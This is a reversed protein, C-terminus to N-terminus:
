ISIVEENGGDIRFSRAHPKLDFGVVTMEGVGHSCIRLLSKRLEVPSEIGPCPDLECERLLVVRRDAVVM